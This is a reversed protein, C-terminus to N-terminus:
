RPISTKFSDPSGCPEGSKKIGFNRADSLGGNKKEFSKIIEPYKQQFENIIKASNDPSGDNVVIAEINKHTQKIVSNLCKRLYKETNYVPIIVSIKKM